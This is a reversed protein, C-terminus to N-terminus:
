ADQRCIPHIRSRLVIPIYSRRDVGGHRADQVVRRRHEGVGEHGGRDDALSVSGLPDVCLQQEVLVTSMCRRNFSRLLGVGGKADRGVRAGGNERVRLDIGLECVEVLLRAGAVVQEFSVSNEMKTKRDM